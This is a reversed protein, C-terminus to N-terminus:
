CIESINMVVDFVPVCEDMRDATLTPKSSAALMGITEMYRGSELAM